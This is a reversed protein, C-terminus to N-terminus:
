NQICIEIIGYVIGFNLSKGIKREIDNVVEISKNFVRSAIITHLDMDNNFVDIITKDKSVQALIRLEVQSFDAVVFM